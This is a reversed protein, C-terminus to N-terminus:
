KRRRKQATTQTPFEFATVRGGGGKRQDVKIRRCGFSVLHMSLAKDSLPPWSRERGLQDYAHRIWKLEVAEGPFARQMELYFMKAADIPPLDPWEVPAAGKGNIGAMGASVLAVATADPNHIPQPKPMSKRPMFALVIGSLITEKLVKHTEKARTGFHIGVCVWTHFFRSACIVFGAL